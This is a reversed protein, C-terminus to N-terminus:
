IGLQVTRLSLGVYATADPTIFSLVDGGKVYRECPKFEIFRGAAIITGAAPVTPTANLGVFVNSNSAYSLLVQYQTTSSGPVTYTLVANAVLTMYPSVDSIATTEGHNRYYQIAM